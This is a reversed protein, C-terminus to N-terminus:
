EGATIKVDWHSARADFGALLARAEAPVVAAEADDGAFRAIAELSEWLTIVTFDVRDAAAERSLVYAGRYGAIASLGPFTHHRLHAEYAPANGSTASGKWMRAIM